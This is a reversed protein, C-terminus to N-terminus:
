NAVAFQASAALGNREANAAARGALAVSGEVGIARAGRRAIPLTFNGLGCFFDAIREEPEPELLAIARRVLVRNMQANVQTFDTPEFEFRLAFEPLEYALTRADAGLPRVSDPGHPQLHFQVGHRAAFATLAAVDADSPPELVRLVLVDLPERDA